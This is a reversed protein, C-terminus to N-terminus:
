TSRKTRRTSCTGPVPVSITQAAVGSAFTLTGSTATYDQGATANGGSMAYNVTVTSSSLPSLSVTFIANTSGTDTETVTVNNITLSPMGENDNITAVGQSDAITANVPVTLNVAFTENPEDLVDGTVPVNLTQTTTGAAFSLTGSVATYDQGAVASSNATAYNVSVPLDSAASLTVTFGANASGSNGETVTVNNISLSPTPDNDTITGVGQSDAITANVPSTLNVFFTENNEDRTDGAIAVTITASSSGPSFSLVTATRASYDAPAVATNNATAFTVSVTQSSTTSLSVTFVANVGAANTEAVTVDSISLSVGEDNAITGVGQADSITANVPTTLNVFFTENAEAVLDGLVAVAITQSTQGPAFTLTTVAVATYDQGAAATGNATAYNVSVSQSSAASLSVTFVANVSGANGETVTVDNISLTPAADDDTITGLGQGDAITAQTAGSLNVFFTESPEDLLDGLVPVSIPQSVVGPAFTLTGSVATFDQGATATGGGVAYNVTVTQTHASSLAVTFTANVSGANGETVMVDNISLTRVVAAAVTVDITDSSTQTGDGVTLQFRLVQPTGTAAPATFSPTASTAGTLTVAPGSTQTWSFTLTANEPDSSGTGNLQVAASGAVTQDPGANAVPPQNGSPTELVLIESLGTRYTGGSVTNITFRVWTIQRAPFQVDLAASDNPLLGVTVPAGSSFTLTGSTINDDLNPRDHLRILGVLHSSPWSLEIWAGVNTGLTSWERSSDM